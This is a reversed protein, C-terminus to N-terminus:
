QMMNEVSRGFEQSHAKGADYVRLNLSKRGDEDYCLVEYDDKAIDPFAKEFANEFKAKMIDDDLEGENIEACEKAEGQAPLIRLTEIADYVIYM